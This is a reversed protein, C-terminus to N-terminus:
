QVARGDRGQLSIHEEAISKVLEIIAANSDSERFVTYYVACTCQIRGRNNCTCDEKKDCGCCISTVEAPLKHKCFECGVCVGKALHVLCEYVHEPQGSPNRPQKIRKVRIHISGCSPCTRLPGDNTPPPPSADQVYPNTLTWVSAPIHDAPTAMLQPHSSFGFSSDIIIITVTVFGM